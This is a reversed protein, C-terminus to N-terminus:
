PAAAFTKKARRQQAVRKRWMVLGTVFQAVIALSALSVAVKSPMGFIDGTHLARNLIVLRQGAATTRSSEAQVVKGGYPDIFVRSRGGPTLDEPYRLAVQYLQGPNPATLLIPAAGPLAARAIELAREPSIVPTGPQPKVSTNPRQVPESRTLKYFMPTAQRDFGILVGTLSLVLLFLLSVIGISNHLDFWSRREGSRWEVRVRKTPWWLYLGSLLLFLSAVGAWSMVQKGIQRPDRKPLWLPTLLRLHLQHVYGLFETPSRDVGLVEGTYPNVYVAADRYIVQWSINAAPSLAFLVPQGPVVKGAAASLEALPKPSGQPEVYSRHPHLLHDLEPEFAMIAGTVGFIAIFVGIALACYLHLNFLLKRV